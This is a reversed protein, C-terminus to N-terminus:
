YKQDCKEAQEQGHMKISDGFLSEKVIIKRM